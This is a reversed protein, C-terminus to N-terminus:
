IVTIRVWYKSIYNKNKFIFNYMPLSLPFGFPIILVLILNVLNKDIALFMKSCDIFSIPQLAEIGKPPWKIFIFQNKRITSSGYPWLLSFPLRYRLLVAAQRKWQNCNQWFHHWNNKYIRTCWLISYMNRCWLSLVDTM